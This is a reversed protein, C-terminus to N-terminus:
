YLPHATALGLNANPKNNILEKILKAAARSSEQHTKFVNIKM